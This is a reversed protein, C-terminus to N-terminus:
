ASTRPALLGPLSSLDELAQGLDGDVRARRERDLSRAPTWGGDATRCAAVDADARDLDRTVTTLLAPDRPRILPTLARVVERTGAINAGVTALTTGSGYDASGGLQFELANELIEHARLPLDGPDTDESPFDRELATVDKVLRATLPRLRDAGRGHWLGYEVAEFGTWGASAVGGPRGDAMGDVADDFDGFSHYAAGLREYDLHGTLWDRRAASLDGRRVDGDLRRVATLLVPLRGSVWSRYATVPATMELDPVPRYGAAAGSARGSVTVPRSTRKTGDSFVCRVAYRGAALTTNLPAAHRPTLWPIEGYVRGGGADTLYVSVYATRSSDTVTFAVPGAAMRTAPTGCRATDVALPGGAVAPSHGRAAGLGAGAAVATLALGAAAARRGSVRRPGAWRSSRGPEPAPDPEPDPESM